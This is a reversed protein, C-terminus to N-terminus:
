QQEIPTPVAAPSAPRGLRDAVLMSLMMEVLGNTAGKEGGGGVQIQPVLPLRGNEIAEAFRM